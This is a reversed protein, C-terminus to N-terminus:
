FFLGRRSVRDIREYEVRLEAIQSQLSDRQEPPLDPHGDLIGQLRDIANDVERMSRMVALRKADQQSQRYRPNERQVTYCSRQVSGDPARVNSCITQNVYQSVTGPFYQYPTEALSRALEMDTVSKGRLLTMLRPDTSQGTADISALAADYFDSLSEAERGLSRYNQDLLNERILRLKWDGFETVADIYAGDAPNLTRQQLYFKLHQKDDVDQWSHRAMNSAILADIVPIQAASNLGDNVRILMLAQTYLDVADDFDEHVAYFAALDRYAEVLSQDYSGREELLEQLRQRRLELEQSVALADGAETEAAPDPLPDGQALAMGTLLLSLLLPHLSQLCSQPM